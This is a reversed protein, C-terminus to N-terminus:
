RLSLQRLAFPSFYSQLKKEHVDNGKKVLEELYEQLLRIEEDRGIIEPHGLLLKIIDGARKHAQDSESFLGRKRLSFVRQVESGLNAMYFLSTREM